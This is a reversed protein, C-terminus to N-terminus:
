SVLGLIGVVISVFTLAIGTLKIVIKIKEKKINKKISPLINCLAYYADAYAGMDHAIIGRYIEDCQAHDTQAMSLKERIRRQYKLLDAYQPFYLLINEEKLKEQINGVDQYIYGVCYNVVDHQVKILNGRAESIHNMACAHDNNQAARLANVLLQRARRIETIELMSKGAIILEGKTILRETKDWEDFLESIRSVFDPSFCPSHPDAETNKSM